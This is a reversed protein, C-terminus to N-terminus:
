RGHLVCDDFRFHQGPVLAAEQDVLPQRRDGHRQLSGHFDQGAGGSFQREVFGAFQHPAVPREFGHWPLETGAQAFAFAHPNFRGSASTPTLMLATSNSLFRM